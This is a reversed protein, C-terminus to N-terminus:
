NNSLINRIIKKHESGWVTNSEFIGFIEGTCLYFKGPIIKKFYQLLEIHKEANKQNIEQDHEDFNCESQLEAILQVCKFFIKKYLLLNRYGHKIISFMYEISKEHDLFTFDLIRALTESPIKSNLFGKESFSLCSSLLGIKAEKNDDFSEFVGSSLIKNIFVETNRQDIDCEDFINLTNLKNKIKQSRERNNEVKKMNKQYKSINRDLIENQKTIDSLLYKRIKLDGKKYHKVAEKLANLKNLNTLRVKAEINELNIFQDKTLLQNKYIDSDFEFYVIKESIQRFISRPITNRSKSDKLIHTFLKLYDSDINSQLLIHVLSKTMSQPALLYSYILPRLNYSCADNQSYIKVKSQTKAACNQNKALDYINKSGFITFKSEIETNKIRKSIKDRVKKLDQAFKEVIGTDFKGHLRDSIHNNYKALPSPDALDHAFNKYNDIFNRDIMSCKPEKGRNEQSIINTKNVSIYKEIDFNFFNKMIEKFEELDHREIEFTNSLFFISFSFLESKTLITGQRSRILQNTFNKLMQDRRSQDTSNERKYAINTFYQLIQCNDIAINTFDISRHQKSIKCKIQNAKAIIDSLEDKFLQKQEEMENKQQPEENKLRKQFIKSSFKELIIKHYSKLKQNNKRLYSFLDYHIEKFFQKDALNEDNLLTNLYIECYSLLVDAIEDFHVTRDPLYKLLILYLEKKHDDFTSFETLPKCILDLLLYFVLDVQSSTFEAKKLYSELINVSQFHSRKELSESKHYNKM